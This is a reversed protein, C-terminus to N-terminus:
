KNQKREFRKQSEQILKIAAKKDQWGKTMVKKKELQKYVNFFHEIEKLLHTQVDNLQNMHNLLPDGVPVCLLKEDRGNQDLMRFVGIPKVEIICGPFTPESVLVLCDLPDGDGALTNLVFGYDAPYQVSTFLMRNYRIAKLKEDYEYKNRSGKPIEIMVTVNM